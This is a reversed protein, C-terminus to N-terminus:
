CWVLSGSSTKMPAVALVGKQEWHSHHQTWCWCRQVSAMARGPSVTGGAGSRFIKNGSHVPIFSRYAKLSHSVSCTSKTGAAGLTETGKSSMGGLEAPLHAPGAASAVGYWQKTHDHSGALHAWNDLWCTLDQSRHARRKPRALSADRLTFLPVGSAGAVGPRRVSWTCPCDVESCQHCWSRSVAIAPPTCPHNRHSGASWRSPKAEPSTSAQDGQGEMGCAAAHPQPVAVGEALPAPTCLRVGEGTSRSSRGTRRWLGFRGRWVRFLSIGSTQKSPFNQLPTRVSLYSQRPVVHPTNGSYQPPPSPHTQTQPSCCVSSSM